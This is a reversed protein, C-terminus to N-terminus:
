HKSTTLHHSIYNESCYCTTQQKSTPLTTYFTTRLGTCTFHLWTVVTSHLKAAVQRRMLGGKRGATLGLSRGLTPINDSGKLM